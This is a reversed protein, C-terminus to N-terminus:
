PASSFPDEIPTRDRHGEALEKLGRSGVYYRGKREGVSDLLGSKVLAKLDSTAVQMSVDADNRYATNDIRNGVSANVLSTAARDSLGLDALRAEVEQGVAAFFELRRKVSKAQQYHGRLCFRIWPVTERHPSWERRGTEALVEYYPRRNRGLWEEISSFTPDLVGGRALVLTQLCRAMRGNGDSFPHIMVLNLHAMAARVMRSSADADHETLQSVLEEILKPVDEAPPGTYVNRGADEDRVYVAGPRWTGPNAEPSNNTMTFHLGRLLDKSYGFDPADSLRLVYDMARRYHVVAAFSVPNATARVTEGDIAAQADEHTVVYGEISNSGRIARAWTDKALLGTWRRPRNQLNHKLAVWLERIQELVLEEDLGIDPAEYLM